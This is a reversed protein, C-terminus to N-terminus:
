APLVPKFPPMPRASGQNLCTRFERLTDLYQFGTCLEPVAECTRILEDLKIRRTQLDDVSFTNGFDTMRYNITLRAILEERKVRRGLVLTLIKYGDTSSRKVKGPVLTCFLLFFSAAVCYGEFEAELGRASTLWNAIVLPILSTAIPGAAVCVLFRLRVASMSRCNAQPLVHGSLLYGWRWNMSWGKGNQFQFPGVRYSRIEFGVALSAALHGLEHLGILVLFIAYGLFAMGVAEFAEHIRM